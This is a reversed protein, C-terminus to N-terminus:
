RVMIRSGNVDRASLETSSCTYSDDSWKVDESETVTKKHEEGDLYWTYTVSGTTTPTYAIVGDKAKYRFTFKGEVTEKWKKGDITLTLTLSYQAYGTGDSAFRQTKNGSADFVHEVGDITRVREHESRSWDTSWLGLLCQDIARSPSPASRASPSSVSAGSSTGEDATPNADDRTAMVGVVAVVIGLVPILISAV